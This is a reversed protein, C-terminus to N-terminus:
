NSKHKQNKENKIHTLYEILYKAYTVILTTQQGCVLWVKFETKNQKVAKTYQRKLNPLDEICITPSKNM